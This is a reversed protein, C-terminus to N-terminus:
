RDVRVRPRGKIKYGSRRQNYAKVPLKNNEIRMLHDLWKIQQNKIFEICSNLKLRERIVDNQLIDLKTVKAAKRLCKMECAILKRKHLDTLSWTQCQYCLAPLFIHQTLQRKVELNYKPHLTLTVAPLDSCEGESM